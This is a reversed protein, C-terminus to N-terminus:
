RGERSARRKAWGRRGLHDREYEELAEPEIVKLRPGAEIARLRGRRIAQQVANRSLGLREAAESTTLWTRENGPESAGGVDSCKPRSVDVLTAGAATIPLVRLCKGVTWKHHINTV